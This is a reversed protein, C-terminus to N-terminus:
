INSPLHCTGGPGCGLKMRNKAIISYIWRVLYVCGPIKMILSFWLLGPCRSSIQEFGDAGYYIEGNEDEVGMAHQLRSTDFATRGPILSSIPAYTVRRFWDFRNIKQLSRQCFGCNADYYVTVKRVLANWDLCLLLIVANGIFNVGLMFFVLIHFTVMTLVFFLRFRPLFLISLFGIEAILTFIGGVVSFMYSQFIGSIQPFRFDSYVFLAEVMGASALNDLHLTFPWQPGTDIIKNVGAFSYWAGVIIFLLAPPWHFDGSRQDLTFGNQIGYFCRSPVLALIFMLCLILTGSDVDASSAQVMGTLHAALVFSIVAMWRAWLGVIGCLCAAIIIYQMLAITEPLPRPIIEYIFQFTTVHLFPIPVFQSHFVRSFDFASEPLYGHLSYNRSAFRYGLYLFGFFQMLFFHFPPSEKFLGYLRIEKNGGSDFIRLAM